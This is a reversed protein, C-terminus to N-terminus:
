QPRTSPRGASVVQGLEALRRVRQPERDMLWPDASLLAHAAAFLPRADAIRGLSYLCEALEEQVYGDDEGAETLERLLERQITLAEDVRGLSRLTRAVCWRAIRIPKAGGRERRLELALQFERLAAEYRGAAHHSWGVNNHLSALWRRAKPDNSRAALDIARQNWEMAQDPVGTAGAVIGVMHAADVALADLRLSLASEWAQEFLPRAEAPSGSSNLM